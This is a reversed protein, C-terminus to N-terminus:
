SEDHSVDDEDESESARAGQAANFMPSLLPNAIQMAQAQMQTLTLKNAVRRAHFLEHELEAKHANTIVGSEALEAVQATQDHLLKAALMKSQVMSVMEVPMSDLFARADHMQEEAEQMLQIQERTRDSSDTGLFSVVDELATKHAHIFGLSAAICREQYHEFHGNLHHWYRSFDLSLFGDLMSQLNWAERRFELENKFLGIQLGEKVVDWDALKRTDQMLAVDASDCLVKSVRTKKTLVGEDVMKWYVSRVVRLLSARLLALGRKNISDGRPLPPRPVNILPMMSEVRDKAARSFLDATEETTLYHALRQHTFVALQYREKQLMRKQESSTRMLGTHRLVWPMMPGNVLLMLAATGGVHFMIRTGDVENTAPSRDAIVAMLLGVAGRMGAWIIVVGEMLTVRQGTMNLPLWLFFFMIGRVVMSSLYLVFLAMVDLFGIAGYADMCIGGFILGALVFIVTNGVFEIMHWITHITERNIFRPWAYSAVIFGTTVLTLVGSSQLENEAFFFSIYACCFTVVVQCMLDGEYNEGVSLGLFWVAFLGLALGFLPGMTTMWFFFRVAEGLSPILGSTAIKMCLQFIVIATGDNFLSEGSVLMTLRPSVGLSNFIAVVAVPDTASLISGFLMATPWSWNYPLMYKGVVGLLATGIVVGPGALVMCQWFCKKVLTVNLSMAEGFVLPPLFVFLLLHPDAKEWQAVSIEFSLWSSPQLLAILLGEVFLVCTYPIAPMYRELVWTTGVGMALVLFLFLIVLHATSHHEEHEEELQHENEPFVGRKDVVESGNAAELFDDYISINKPKEIEPPPSPAALSPLLLPNAVQVAIEPSQIHTTISSSQLLPASITASSVGEECQELDEPVHVGRIDEGAARGPFACALFLHLALVPLPRAM